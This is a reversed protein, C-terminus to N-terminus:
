KNISAAVYEYFQSITCLCTSFASITHIFHWKPSCSLVTLTSQTALWISIHWYMVTYTYVSVLWHISTHLIYVWVGTTYIFQTSGLGGVSSGEGGGGPEPDITYPPPPPLFQPRTKRILYASLFQFQFWNYSNILIWWCSTWWLLWSVDKAFPCKKCIYGMVTESVSKIYNFQSWRGM